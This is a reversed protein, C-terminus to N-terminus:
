FVKPRSDSQVAQQIEPASYLEAYARKYGLPLHLEFGKPLATARGANKLDINYTLLTTMPIKLGESLFQLNTSQKLTVADRVLLKSKLIQRNNFIDNHYKEAYLAALFSAYFNGSAFKFNPDNYKQIIESLDTTKLLKSARLVGGIGHNYSTVALPWHGKTMKYYTKLLQAAIMTAKLPSNRQDIAQSVTGYITGTQPMVQWIGSAGVKSVVGENFGSEVFPLRCLETPLGMDRFTKEMYTMYKRSRILGRVFSDRMGLQVRINEPVLAV